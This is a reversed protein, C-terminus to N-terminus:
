IGNETGHETWEEDCYIQVSEPDTDTRIQTQFLIDTGIQIQFLIDTGIQEMKLENKM